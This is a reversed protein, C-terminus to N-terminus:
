FVVLYESIPVHNLLYFKTCTLFYQENGLFINLSRCFQKGYKLQSVDHKEKMPDAKIETM